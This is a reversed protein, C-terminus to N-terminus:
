WESFGMMIFFWSAPRIFCAWAICSLIFFAWSDSASISTSPWDPAPRTLTTMVHLFSTLRTEISGDSSASSLSMSSSRTAAAKLSATRLASAVDCSFIDPMVAPIGNGGPNLIGNYPIHRYSTSTRQRPPLSQMRLSADHENDRNGIGLRSAFYVCQQSRMLLEQVFLIGVAYEQHRAALYWAAAADDNGVCGVAGFYFGNDFGVRKVDAANCFIFNGLEDWGHRGFRKGDKPM